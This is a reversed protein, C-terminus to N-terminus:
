YPGGSQQLDNLGQRTTVGSVSSSQPRTIIQEDPFGLFPLVFSLLRLSTDSYASIHPHLHRRYQSGLTRPSRAATSGLSHQDLVRM